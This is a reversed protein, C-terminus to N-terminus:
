RVVPNPHHTFYHASRGSLGTGVPMGVPSGVRMEERPMDRFRVPYPVELSVPRATRTGGEPSLSKPSLSQPHPPPGLHYPWSPALHWKDALQDRSLPFAPRVSRVTARPTVLQPHFTAPHTSVSSSSRPVFPPPATLAPPGTQFRPPPHLPQPNPYTQLRPSQFARSQQSAPGHGPWQKPFTPHVVALSPGQSVRVSFHPPEKSSPIFPQSVSVPGKMLDNPIMQTGGSRDTSETGQQAPPQFFCPDKISPREKAPTCTVTSPVNSSIVLGTRSKPWTGSSSEAELDQKRTKCGANPSTPVFASPPFEVIVDDTERLPTQTVSSVGGAIGPLESDESNSVLGCSKRERDKDKKHGRECVDNKSHPTDTDCDCDNKNHLRFITGVVM